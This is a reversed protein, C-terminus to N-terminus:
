HGSQSQELGHGTLAQFVMVMALTDLECYRLLQATLRQRDAEAMSTQQLRDYAILAAGGNSIFDREGAGDEGELAAAARQLEVDGFLPDLLEYPDRVTDGDAVVWQWDRFNLSPMATTGYCRRGYHRRVEPSFQLAAPLVKKISSSGATRPFYAVRCVLKGLDRLRGPGDEGGIMADVFRILSDAGAAGDRAVQRQIDTLVTQEHTWWHVVTGEDGSLAQMLTRLVPVSPSRGPTVEICQTRHSLQGNKELVHHSFQFLIQDYPTRGAHYPLAPRSTEFDIFHLPWQWSNLEAHLARELLFPRDLAGTAEQWQLYRRHSPDIEDDTDSEYAVADEAVEALRLPQYTLLRSLSGVNIAYLSFVTDGRCLDPPAAKAAGMCESWGSRVEDGVDSPEAYYECKRCVASVRVPFADGRELTDSLTTVFGEFPMSVGATEVPYARVRAVEDSVDILRLVLPTLQTIDFHPDVNVQVNRGDVDVSLRSSLGDITVTVSKDLLLLHPIVRLGPLARELVYAQYAVDYLYPRWPSLIPHGRTSRFRTEAPDYGKAKVEILQLTDGQKRLVDCRVLLNGHRITAEFLTASDAHLAEATAAVQEEASQASILRGEPFMLRALAGVQHGGEALMAMFENESRQDRYRPDRAYDLKRPCELAQAFLTKTLYM